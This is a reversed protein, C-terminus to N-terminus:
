LPRCQPDAPLKDPSGVAPAPPGVEPLTHRYWRAEDGHFVAVSEVQPSLALGGAPLLEARLSVGSLLRTPPNYLVFHVSM